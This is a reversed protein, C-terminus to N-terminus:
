LSEILLGCAIALLALKFVTVRKVGLSDALVETPVTAIVEVFFSGAVLYDLDNPNFGANLLFRQFFQLFLHPQRGM